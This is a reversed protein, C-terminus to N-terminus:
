WCVDGPAWFDEDVAKLGRTRPEIGLRGVASVQSSATKSAERVGKKIKPPHLTRASRPSDPNRAGALLAATSEAATRAHEPLVSTYTDATIVITSHGLM